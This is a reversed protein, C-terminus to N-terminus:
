TDMNSPTQHTEACGVTDNIEKFGDADVLLLGVPAAWLAGPGDFL